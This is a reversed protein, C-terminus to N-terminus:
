NVTCPGSLANIARQLREVSAGEKQLDALALTIEDTVVPCVEPEPPPAPITFADRQTAETCLAVIKNNGALSQHVIDTGGIYLAKFVEPDATWEWGYARMVDVLPCGYEGALSVWLNHASRWNAVSARYIPPTILVVKAGALQAAEIMARYNAEHTSLPVAGEKTDNVTFMMAVVDPAHDLVDTQFRALIQSSKNGPVGANIITDFGAALGVRQPWQNALTMNASAVVSDGPFVITSM